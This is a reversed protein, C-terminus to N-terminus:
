KQATHNVSFTLYLPFTPPPRGNLKQSSHTPFPSKLFIYIKCASKSLFFNNCLFVKSIFVGVSSFIDKM